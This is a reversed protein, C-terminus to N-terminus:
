SCKLSRRVGVVLKKSIAPIKGERGIRKGRGRGGEGRWVKPLLGLDIGVYGLLDNALTDRDYVEGRREGGGGEEGVLVVVVEVVGVVKDEEKGTAVISPPPVVGAAM